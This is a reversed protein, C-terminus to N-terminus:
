SPQGQGALQQIQVIVFEAPKVPAFGVLINVIGQDVDDPTTTTSNCRVLYAQSASTGQFAGAAFLSGMFSGVETTIQAWLREDNDQFVVWRLSQYLSDEIFDTLRRVNVYKFASGLLDAGALTRAGWVVNGYTAFNRLTNVGQPNLLGDDTDSVKVALEANEIVAGIGAPAKWVGYNLDNGAYIGAVTGSAGVNRNRYNALPDPVLLRPYYVGANYADANGFTNIWQLMAAASNTSAPIDAIFFARNDQALETALETATMMAGGSYTAIVPLCLTNFIKPKMAAVAGPLGSGQSEEVPFLDAAGPPGGDTGGSLSQFDEPTNPRTGPIKLGTYTLQLLKSQDNVVAPAYNQATPDGLTLNHYTEQAMTVLRNNQVGMQRVQLNFQSGIAPVIEVQLNNGWVGPDAANIELIQESDAEDELGALIARQAAQMATQAGLAAQQAAAVAATAAAMADELPIVTPVLDAIVSLALYSAENGVAWEFLDTAESQNSGDLTLGTVATAVNTNASGAQTKLTTVATTLAALAPKPLKGAAIQPLDAQLQSQVTELVKVSAKVTLGALSSYGAAELQQGVAIAQGIAQLAQEGASQAGTESRLSDEELATQWAEVAVQTVQTAGVALVATNLAGELATVLAGLDSGLDTPPSAALDQADSLWSLIQSRAETAAELAGSVLVVLQDIGPAESKAEGATIATQAADLQDTAEQAAAQAATGLRIDNELLPVFAADAPHTSAKAATLAANAKGLATPVNGTPPGTSSAGPTLNAKAAKWGAQIQTSADTSAGTLTAPTSPQPLPDQSAATAAASATEAATAAESAALAAARATELTAGAEPGYDANYREILSTLEEGAAKAAAAAALTAGAAVETAKGAALAAKFPPTDSLAAQAQAAAKVAKEAAAAVEKALTDMTPSVVPVPLQATTANGNGLRVVWAVQGGNNFYQYIGYSAESRQDLGGFKRMFATWSDVMVASGMPGQPFFDAFLTASTSAATVTQANTPLEEIYVGPYTVQVPM